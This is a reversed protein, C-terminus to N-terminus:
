PIKLWKKITDTDTFMVLERKEGEYELCRLIIAVLSKNFKYNEDKMWDARLFNYLRILQKNDDVYDKIRRILRVYNNNYAVAKQNNPDKEIPLDHYADFKSCWTLGEVILQEETPNKM